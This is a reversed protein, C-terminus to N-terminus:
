LICTGRIVYFPQVVRSTTPLPIMFWVGWSTVLCEHLKGLLDYQPFLYYATAAFSAGDQTWLESILPGTSPTFGGAWM